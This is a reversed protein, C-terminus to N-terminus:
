SSCPVGLPVWTQVRAVCLPLFFCITTIAPLLLATQRSKETVVIPHIRIECFSCPLQFVSYPQPPYVERHNELEPSFHELKPLNGLNRPWASDLSLRPQNVTQSAPLKCCVPRCGLTLENVM